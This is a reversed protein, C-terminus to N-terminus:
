KKAWSPLDSFSVPPELQESRPTGAAEWVDEYQYDPGGICEGFENDPKYRWVLQAERGQYYTYDGDPAAEPPGEALAADVGMRFAAFESQISRDNYLWAPVPVGKYFMDSM